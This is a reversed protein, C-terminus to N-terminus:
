EREIPLIDGMSHFSATGDIKLTLVGEVTAVPVRNYEASLFSSIRVEGLPLEVSNFRGRSGFDDESPEINEIATWKGKSYAAINALRGDASIDTIGDREDWWMMPSM